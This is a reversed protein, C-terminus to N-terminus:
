RGGAILADYTGWEERLVDCIEGITCRNALADRMPELLNVDSAVAAARVRRWARRRRTPTAARGSRAAHPRGAPAEAAPDLRHLEPDVRGEDAYRNVGVM